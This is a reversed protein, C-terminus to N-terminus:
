AQEPPKPAVHLEDVRVETAGPPPPIPAGPSPAGNAVKAQETPPPNQSVVGPPPETPKKVETMVEREFTDRLDDGASRIQKLTKGITKAADPLGEPGILLLALVAVIILETGSMGFM